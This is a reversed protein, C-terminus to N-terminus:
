EHLLPEIYSQIFTIRDKAQPIFSSAISVVAQKKTNVYIVNGGDGIAAFCDKDILWWLYGYPLNGWQTCRSHEQTSESLWHASVITKGHVIGKNLFLQGIKVMELPTLFLGWGTTNIGQPDVAWGKTKKDNMVALHEEKSHLLISHPVHINLPSFLYKTAFDLIPCGIAQSLIGSLIHIGGIASYNFNGIPDKGGLLDLADLIPNPSLFFMEYPETKYKYPATMTLLHKITIKQITTEDPHVHYDPFFELIKQNVSKIYGKDIAIGILISCISKTVSHVHIADHPNYNNFYKEFVRIGEQQVVLGTINSYDKKIIAELTNFNTQTM